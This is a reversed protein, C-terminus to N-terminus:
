NLFNKKKKPRLKYVYLEWSVKQMTAHLEKLLEKHLERAMRNDYHMNFKEALKKHELKMNTMQTQLREITM